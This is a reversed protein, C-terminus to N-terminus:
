GKGFRGVGVCFTVFFVWRYIAMGSEASGLRQVVVDMLGSVRRMQTWVVEFGYRWISGPPIAANTNKTTSSSTSSSPLSSPSAEVLKKLIATAPRCVNIPALPTSLIQSVQPPLLSTNTIIIHNSSSSPPKAKYIFAADLLHWGHDLEM